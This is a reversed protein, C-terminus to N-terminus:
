QDAPAAIIRRYLPLVEDFARAVREHLDAPIRDEPWVKALIADVGWSGSPERARFSPNVFGNNSLAWAMMRTERDAVVRRIFRSHEGEPSPLYHFGCAAGYTPGRGYDLLGVELYLEPEVHADGRHFDKRLIVASCKTGVSSHWHFPTGKVVFEDQLGRSAVYGNLASKLLGWYEAGHADIFAQGSPGIIERVTSEAEVKSAKNGARGSEVISRAMDIIAPYPSVSM